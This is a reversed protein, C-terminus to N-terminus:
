QQLRTAGTNNCGTYHKGVCKATEAPQLVEKRIFGCKYVTKTFLNSPALVGALTAYLGATRAKGKAIRCVADYTHDSMTRVLYLKEVMLAPVTHVEFCKRPLGNATGSRWSLKINAHDSNQKALITTNAAALSPLPQAKGFGFRM